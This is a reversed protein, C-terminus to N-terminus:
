KEWRDSIVAKSLMKVSHCVEAGARLLADKVEMAVQDAYRAPAQVQLEDHVMSLLLAKYKPLVHWLYPKGDSSYGCGMARKVIDANTSQAPHNKGQREIHGMMAIMGQKIDKDTPARHTLSWLETEKPERLEKAKFKFIAQECEVPSLKLKEEEYEEVWIKASEYTPEIFLRRRGFMSRSEKKEKAEQGSRRLYGWIDAFKSEHLQMLTKAVDLSAGIADALAQPGGGYAILFNVAKTAKRLKIHEPCECQKRNLEGKDNVAYYACPPLIIEEGKEKDFWKEGGKCALAPWKEPYLIETCVSHLDQMKAFASLWSKAQALEAIIRLECGELDVTIIKYGEPEKEDPPDVVFCRRVDDEAPLNQANPKSSSSRGTEAELQNFQCHLRGDGPHRFGEEKCPKTIWRTIWQEGYTGTEKKGKRYRRLVQIIPRDNFKILTDDGVSDIHGMGRFTKVAALLQENSGYNLFAEGECKEIIKIKKTRDKSLESYAARAEAKLASRRAKMSKLEARLAEKKDAQKEERIQAAKAVEEATPENFGERWIKERRELEAYNVAESKRGVIPIFTEDLIKVEEIRRVKVADIRKKWRADDMNQGTLHMDTYSGLADFEITATTLLQQPVLVQLQMLRLALPMRIDLAAYTIQEPTLPSSLDFSKQKSKDITVGFYREMLAAMSFKAYQKLSIKGGAQIVREALDTSYLHWIRRGFNWKLVEYDFALNQGVLLVKGKTLLPDLIEFISDYIHNNNVGYSGQSAVLADESEAFPLLDIVFQSEKDGIQISRARRFWFDHTVQTETDLGCVPVSEALKLDAWRKLAALGSTPTVVTINMPPKLTTVDLAPYEQIEPM